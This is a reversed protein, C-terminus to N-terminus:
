RWAAAPRRPTKLRRAFPPEGGLHWGRQARTIRSCASAYKMKEVHLRDVLAAVSTRVMVASFMGKKADSLLRYISARDRFQETAHELEQYVKVVEGNLLQVAQRM